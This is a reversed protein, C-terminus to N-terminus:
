GSTGRSASSRIPATRRRIRRFWAAPRRHVLASVAMLSIPVCIFAGAGIEKLVVAGLVAGSVFCGIILAYHNAKSLGRPDSGNLYGYIADSGSRLNGTCMTSAFPLGRVRRFTQVQMACVFSIMAAVAFDWSGHPICAVLLLLASEVWLVVQHWGMRRMHGYRAHIMNAFVVGVGYAVVACAGHAAGRFDGTAFRLGIIVLNGTVANAFVGGRFLYSYVDTFGGAASLICAALLREEREVREMDVGARSTVACAMPICPM